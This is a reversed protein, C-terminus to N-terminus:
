PKNPLNNKSCRFCLTYPDRGWSRGTLWRHSWLLLILPESPQQCLAFTVAEFNCTTQTTSTPAAAAGRRCDPSLCLSTLQEVVLHCLYPFGADGDCSVM